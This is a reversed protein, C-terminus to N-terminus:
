ASAKTRPTSGVSVLWQASMRSVGPHSFTHGIDDVKEGGASRRMVRM